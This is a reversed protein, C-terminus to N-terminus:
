KKRYDPEPVPRTNMANVSAILWNGTAGSQDAKNKRINSVRPISLINPISSPTTVEIISM